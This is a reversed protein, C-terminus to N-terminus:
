AGIAITEDVGFLGEDTEVISQLPESLKNDEALRDLEIGVLLAHQIERKELVAHVSEVCIEMTLGEVYPAQMNFVIDAIDSIEVGREQLMRRAASEVERSNVKR